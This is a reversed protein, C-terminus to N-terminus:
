DGRLELIALVEAENSDKIGVNKSFMYILKERWNQLVSGIGAMGPGRTVGDVNFKLVRNPPHSWRVPRKVKFSKCMTSAKWNLMISDLDFGVFEKRITVWSAIKLEAKSLLSDAISSTRRFIRDNREKWM